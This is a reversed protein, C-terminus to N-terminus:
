HRAVLLSGHKLAAFAAARSSEVGAGPLGILELMLMLM